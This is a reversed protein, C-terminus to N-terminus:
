RLVTDTNIEELQLHTLGLNINGVAPPNGHEHEAEKPTVGYCPLLLSFLFPLLIMQFM